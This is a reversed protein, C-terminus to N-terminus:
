LRRALTLPRQRSPKSNKLRPTINTPPGPPRPPRAASPLNAPSRPPSPMTTARSTSPPGSPRPRATLRHPVSAPVRHLPPTSQQYRARAPRKNRPSLPDRPLGTPSTACSLFRAVTPQARSFFYAAPQAPVLFLFPHGHAPQAAVKTQTERKKEIEM